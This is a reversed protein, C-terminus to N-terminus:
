PYDAMLMQRFGQTMQHVAKNPMYITNYNDFDFAEQGSGGPFAAAYVVSDSSAKGSQGSKESSSRACGL